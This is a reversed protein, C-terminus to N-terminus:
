NSIHCFESIFPYASNLPDLSFKIKLSLPADHLYPTRSRIKVCSDNLFTTTLHVFYM